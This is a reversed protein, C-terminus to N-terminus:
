NINFDAHTFIFTFVKNLEPQTIKKTENVSIFLFGKSHIQVLYNNNM